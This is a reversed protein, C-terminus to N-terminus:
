HHIVADISPLKDVGNPWTVAVDAHGNSFTITPYYQEKNGEFHYRFMGEQLVERERESM